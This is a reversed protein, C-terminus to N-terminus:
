LLPSQRHSVLMITGSEMLSTMFITDTLAVGKNVWDFATEPRISIVPTTRKLTM